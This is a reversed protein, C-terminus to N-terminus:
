RQLCGVFLGTMAAAVVGFTIGAALPSSRFLDVFISLLAAGLLIKIIPQDFKEVFKQWLPERPLPTLKNAGFRQRSEAVAASSLGAEPAVNLQSQVEHLTRM